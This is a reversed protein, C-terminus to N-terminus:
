QCVTPTRCGLQVSYYLPVIDYESLQTWRGGLEPLERAIAAAREQTMFLHARDPEPFLRMQISDDLGLYKGGHTIAYRCRYQEPAQVSIPLTSLVQQISAISRPVYDSIGIPTPSKTTLPM